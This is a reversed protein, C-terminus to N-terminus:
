PAVRPRRSTGPRGGSVDVFATSRVYSAAHSAIERALSDAGARRAVQAAEHAVRVAERFRGTAALAAAQTDLISADNRNSLEVARTSLRLAEAPGRLAPDPSTARIWALANLAQAWDPKEDVTRELEGVAEAAQGPMELLTTGLGFHVVPDEPALRLASRFSAVAEQVRGQALSLFGVGKLAEVHHPNLRAAIRLETAASDLRGMRQLSLGLQVHVDPNYPTLSAVARFHRIAEEPRDRKLLMLGVNYQADPFDPTVEAARQFLRFAEDQDSESGAGLITGLINNAIPQDPAITLVHRWWSVSDRWPRLTSRTSRAEAALVLLLPAVLLTRRLAGPLRPSRWVVAMGAAIPLLLGLAPFYLYKDSITVFSYKVLGLTPALGVVFFLWGVLPGPTRRVAVVTLVTIAATVLVGFLIAPNSLVFPGREPYYSSLNVPWVIKGLYFGLSDAVQLPWRLYGASPTMLGGNPANSALTVAGSIVSLLFFPWKEVLARRGWRKLPWWDLLLMLVPLM